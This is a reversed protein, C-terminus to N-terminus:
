KERFDKTSNEEISKVMELDVEVQKAMHGNDITVKSANSPASLQKKLKDGCECDIVSLADKGLRYFKSRSNGCKCAYYILPM